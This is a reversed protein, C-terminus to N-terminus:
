AVLGAARLSVQLDWGESRTRADVYVLLRYLGHLAHAVLVGSLLYPTCAGDLAAGFPEGLEFTVACWLTLAVRGLVVATAAAPQAAALRASRRLARGADVRELLAAEGSFALPGLFLPAGVFCTLSSVLVVGAAVAVVGLLASAREGVGRFAEVVSSDEAFLLRGALLTLPAQVAPGVALAALGLWWAGESWWAAFGFVLSLPLLVAGAFRALPRWRARVLVVTLDLVDLPDRPRLALHCAFPNV